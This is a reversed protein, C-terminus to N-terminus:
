GEEGGGYGEHWHASIAALIASLNERTTFRSQCRSCYWVIYSERADGVEEQEPAAILHRPPDGGHDTVIPLLRSPTLM